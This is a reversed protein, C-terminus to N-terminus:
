ALGLREALQRQTLGMHKRSCVPGVGVLAGLGDKDDLEAQCFLCIGTAAGYQAAMEPTVAHAETIGVRHPAGMYAWAGDERGMAYLNGTKSEKVKYVTEGVLYFGVAVPTREAVPTRQAMKAHMKLGANYQGETLTGTRTFYAFLSSAFDSWRQAGLWEALEPISPAPTTTQTTTM